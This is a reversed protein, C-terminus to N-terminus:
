RIRSYAKISINISNGEAEVRDVSNIVFDFTGTDRKGLLVAYLLDTALFSTFFDNFEAPHKMFESLTPYGLLKLYQPEDQGYFDDQKKQDSLWDDYHARLSAEFHSKKVILVFKHLPNRLSEDGFGLDRIAFSSESLDTPSGNKIIIM